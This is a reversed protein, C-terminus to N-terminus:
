PAKTGEMRLNLVSDAGKTQYHAVTTGVLKGDKLRLVGHTTVKEGKRLASEYPGADMVISDGSATVSSATIPKRKPFNVQWGAPDAAAVLEYKLLVSDSTEGMTVMNWKGAVDALTIAPPPPPPAPAAAAPAAEAKPEEKAPEPKSCAIVAIGLLACPVIPRM